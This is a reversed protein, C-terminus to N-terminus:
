APLWPVPTAVLVYCCAFQWSCGRCQESVQPHGAGTVLCLRQGRADRLPRGHMDLLAPAPLPCPLPRRAVLAAAGAAAAALLLLLALLFLSTAGSFGLVQLVVHAPLPQAVAVPRSFCWLLTHM